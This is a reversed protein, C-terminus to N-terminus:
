PRAKRDPGAIDSLIADATRRGARGDTNGVWEELAGLSAAPLAEPTPERRLATEALMAALEEPSGAYTVAPGLDVSFRRQEVYAAEAFRPQVVPRGAALAELLATSNFGCV